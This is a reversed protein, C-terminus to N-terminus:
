KSGKINTDYKYLFTVMQRRLCNGEPKFTGDDYGAVIKKESSWLVAKYFYESENVDIFKNKTTKPEPKGALRWLFTVAHKRKCVKQPGFTGDAYGETIGKEDAWIVAKYFYDDNDVDTFNCKSSSPKPCGELRWLLTVMQARTCENAPKFLTQDDYGKVVEKATMYYTPKYWFDNPNKVDKYLVNVNITIKKGKYEGTVVTKGIKGAKVVGLSNVTAVSKDKVSWKIESREVNPIQFVMSSKNDMEVSYSKGAAVNMSKAGKVPKVSKSDSILGLKKLSNMTESTIRRGVNFGYYTFEATIIAAIYNDKSYIPGGSNGAVVDASYNVVSKNKITTKRGNYITYYDPALKGKCVKLPDSDGIYGAFNYDQNKFDSDTFAKIGFHGTISGIKNKFKVFAYDCELDHDNSNNYNTYDEDYYYDECGSAKAIYSGTNCDYGFLCTISKLGQRHYPCIVCHGATVMTNDSIMFGTGYGADGCEYSMQIHAIASYPFTKTDSIIKRDDKGVVMEPDMSSGFYVKEEPGAAKVLRNTDTTDAQVNSAPANSSFVGCIITMTLIFSTIKIRYNTM